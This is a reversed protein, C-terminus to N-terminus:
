SCATVTHTNVTSMDIPTSRVLISYEIDVEITYLYRVTSYTLYSVTGEVVVM